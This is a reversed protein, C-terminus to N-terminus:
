FIITLFISTVRYKCQVLLAGSVEFHCKQYARDDPGGLFSKTLGLRAKSLRILRLNELFPWKGWFEIKKALRSSENSRSAYSLKFHRM